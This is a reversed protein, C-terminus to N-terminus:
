GLQLWRAEVVNARSVYEMRKEKKESTGIASNLLTSVLCFSVYVGRFYDLCSVVVDPFGHKSLYLDHARKSRM